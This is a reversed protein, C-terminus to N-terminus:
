RVLPLKVRFTTGKGVASDVEITGGHKEVIQHCIYLGLGTGKGPAKTTFFPKFIDRRVEESMGSGTDVCEFVVWGMGGGRLGSDQTRLRGQATDFPGSDVGGEGYTRLVIEGEKEGVADIANQIINLCVQGLQAFNGPIQPLGEQYDEKVNVEYRKYKNYLVRLADKAVVELKVPETYDNTQRSLDLLSAVIDKIRGMEKRSFALHGLIAERDQQFEEISDEQIMEQVSQVLSSAAGLPNNLEHAVGAVLTGIAAMSESRVLMEQAQEKETLAQRVEQNAKELGRNQAELREFDLYRAYGLAVVRAFEEVLAVDEERFGGPRRTSLSLTGYTFPADVLATPRETEGTAGLLRRTEFHRAAVGEDVPRVVPRGGKWIARFAESVKEISEESQGFWGEKTAGYQRRVGAEEDVINIVCIDFAVGAGSLERLMEAVVDKLDEASKMATVEARVREVARERDLRKNTEQLERNLAFMEKNGSSLATNSERLKRNSVVIRSAQLGIVGALVAMLGLFWPQRWVPPVVTFRIAAPTPDVNFDRDRARVEFTHAGSSLALFVKNKEASFPSWEGGDMRYSYQVEEDPTAKWPDAGKWALTTNGPQSVKDLSLTIETEPPVADPQYRITRFNFSAGEPMTYGPMSRRFWNQAGSVRNLWLARDPSQRMGEGLAEGRLAEPLADKTWTRGDFRSFGEETRVWVSGDATQLIDSVTNGALGGRVDYRTWTKGDYHFVGYTRTGVWLDGKAGTYVVQSYPTTLEEPESVATWQRGDYHTLAAGGIWLTGDATQGIGYPNAPATGSPYHTWEGERDFKLLGGRFGRGVTSWDIAAGFWLSGDSTQCVVRYYVAWSLEPHVKLSWRGKGDDFRATAATSNHSGVAWVEGERTVFLGHPADMLGDEVGYRTWSEGRRRVVGDDNSIFWQAGDPAEDAYFLGEYTTWRATAYDLRAAEQGLGAVWLAGDSAELLRTRHSPISVESRTYVRLAKLREKPTAHGSTDPLAHLPGFGGIWLTGDRTVLISTNLNFGGLDRLSFRTWRTGDFWNGGKGSHESVTWVTGDRTQVIRPGNGIDLGDQETYLRWESRQVGPSSSPVYRVIEGGDLGGIGFWMRGERDEYVDYIPFNRYTGEVQRRTVTVEFPKVQGERQITLKVAAGETRLATIRDGVKLGAAEGPGGSTLAWIVTPVRAILPLPTALIGIGEGYPRAPTAEEPVIVLTAYPASVRLFDGRKKATYLTAGEQGLRLAGWTTGAWLSGDRAEMLDWTPWPLAQGSDQAQRLRGQALALSDFPISPDGEPPFVRRWKGEKFRSIGWATGAYISGDRTACLTNVTGGYLGEKETYATWKVGDYHRVGDDVGFWMAKDKAEAMCRLGLGNLEPFSRWRWSELVPDPHVPQYPRAALCESAFAGSAVGISLLVRWLLGFRKM